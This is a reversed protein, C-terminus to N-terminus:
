PKMILYPTNSAYAVVVSCKGRASTDRLLERKDERSMNMIKRKDYSTRLIEDNSKKETRYVRIDGLLWM